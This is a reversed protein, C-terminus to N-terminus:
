IDTGCDAVILRDIRSCDKAVHLGFSLVSLSGSDAWVEYQSVKWEGDEEAFGLRYAFMEDWWKGTEKWTFRAEGRVCVVMDVEDIVYDSFNMDQFTLYQQLMNFYEEVGARSTFSRGLFPALSPHGHERASPRTSSSFHSLLISTPSASSFDLCLSKAAFLLAARTSQSQAAMVLNLV